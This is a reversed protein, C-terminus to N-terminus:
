GDGGEFPEGAIPLTVYFTSGKGPESEFWICGGQLEVLSRTIYLGLGAGTTQALDVNGARYFREFLKDQDEFPIGVGTDKVSIQLFGEEEAPAVRVAIEGKEPTYKSANSLLNGLIQAVRNEDCLALPLKPASELTIHQQKSDLHPQYEVTIAEVLAPLNNPRLVLEIRGAEIRTVDLLNKSLTELRGVSRRMIALSTRQEDTLSGLEGDGLMELYGKLATLPTRLEHAAVSVFTSRIEDMRHLEANAVELEENQRALRDRLLSLENRRQALQQNIIGIETVDEVIQVLGVVKGGLDRYPLTVMNLYITQHEALERNVWSLQFRPLDQNLLKELVLESGVLEPILDLLRYGLLSEQDRGLIESTGGVGVVNLAWNTILYVIRRDRQILQTVSQEM